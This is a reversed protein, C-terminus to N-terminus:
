PLLIQYKYEYGGMDHVFKAIHFHLREEESMRLWFTYAKYNGVRKPRGDESHIANNVFVEHLNVIKYCDSDVPHKTAFLRQDEPLVSGSTTREKYEYKGLSLQAGAVKYTLAVSANKISM